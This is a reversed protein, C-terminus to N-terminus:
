SPRLHFVCFLFMLYLIGISPFLNVFNFVLLHFVSVVGIFIRLIDSKIRVSECTYALPVYEM